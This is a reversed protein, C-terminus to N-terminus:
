ESCFLWHISGSQVKIIALVTDQKIDIPLEVYEHRYYMHVLENYRVRFQSRRKTAPNGSSAKEMKVLLIM